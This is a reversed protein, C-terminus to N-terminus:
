LLATELEKAVILCAKGGAIAERHIEVICIVNSSYTSTKM